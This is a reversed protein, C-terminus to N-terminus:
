SRYYRAGHEGGERNQENVYAYGLAQLGARVGDKGRMVLSEVAKPSINMVAAAERHSLGEYFCLVLARRQREPLRALAARIQAQEERDALAQAEDPGRDPLEESLIVVRERGRQRLLDVCRNSVVRYFWTTFRADRGSDFARPNDWLKLFCDQVADEALSTQGTLRWALAYFRKTHRRVLFSFAQHDRDKVRAMLSEDDPNDGTLATM